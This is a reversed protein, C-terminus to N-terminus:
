DPVELAQGPLILDPDAIGNETLLDDRLVGLTSAIRNMTDGGQVVYSRKAKAPRTATPIKLIQGVRITGLDAIGNLDAIGFSTVGKSEAINWLTDGKQVVYSRGGESARTGRSAPEARPPDVKAPAPKPAAVREPAAM